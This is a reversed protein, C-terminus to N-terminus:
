RTPRQYPEQADLDAIVRYHKLNFTYLRASRNLAMAAIICDPISLATALRYTALLNYARTMDQADPWVLNLSDLFKKTRTLENQNQCGALLEMAVIGPVFYDEAPTANLWARSESVGRLYDVLVDTDLCATM